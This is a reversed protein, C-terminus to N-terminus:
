SQRYFKDQIDNKTKRMFKLFNVRVESKVSIKNCQIYLILVIYFILVRCCRASVLDFALVDLNWINWRKNVKMCLKLSQLLQSLVLTEMNLQLDVDYQFKTENKNVQRAQPKKNPDIPNLIIPLFKSKCWCIPPPTAM